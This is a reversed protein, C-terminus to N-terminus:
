NRGILEAKEKSEQKQRDKRDFMKITGGKLERMHEKKDDHIEIADEPRQIIRPTIFVYLNNRESQRTRYKFLWGLLPIDGLLPVKYVGEGSNDEIMGGIVITDGSRVVVTTKATRKLTTPALIKIGTQVEQTQSDLKTVSQEIKLRVYGEKNIQPTVKLTVGVDKYEYSSYNITATTTTDQRTVYPVNKGVTIEAEENDTTLLQPTSLIRVDTDSQYAQVFAAINPFVLDGVKIAQGVVGLTLGAPLTAATAGAAAIPFLGSSIKYQGGEGSVGGIYAGTKGDYTVTGGGQWEVGLKFSKAANVEMILGEIYVMPRFIDLKKIVDEIILYDATDATIILSNTAKDAVIQVTKSLAPLKPDAAKTQPLATLVKALDEAKANQLYYVRIMGTGKPIEKDMLSILEKVRKTDNETAMIIVANAREDPIIRIPAMGKFHQFIATMSKAVDGSSAFKLPVYAIQEGVGHVDLANVIEQLKKINSLLDTVILMGTPPYSVIVSSKAILPDLVKKMEDASAHDLPIIQTVMKDQASLDNTGLRTELMKERALAIPIIKTVEGAAVAAFGNVELVSEFVKYAEDVTIKRPSLVTIKGKVKDDIIFNRGTMESIFRIFVQIDVNDFDITIYRTDKPPQQIPQVAPPTVAPQATPAPVATPVAPASSTAPVAVAPPVPAPPAATPPATQPVPSVVPPAKVEQAPGAAAPTMVPAPQTQVAVPQQPQKIDAPQAADPTKADSSPAQVGTTVPPTQAAPPVPSPTKKAERTIRAPPAVPEQKVEQPKDATSVPKEDGAVRAAYCENGDTAVAVIAIIIFIKLLTRIM